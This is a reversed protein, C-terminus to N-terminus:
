LITSTIRKEYDSISKPLDYGEWNEKQSVEYPIKYCILTIVEDKEDETLTPNSRISDEILGIVRESLAHDIKFFKTKM